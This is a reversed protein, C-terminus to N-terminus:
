SPTGSFLDEVKSDKALFVVRYWTKMSELFAKSAARHAVMRFYSIPALTMSCRHSLVVLATMKLPLVPSQDTEFLLQLGAHIGVRM